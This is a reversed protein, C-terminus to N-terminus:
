AHSVGPREWRGEVWRCGYVQCLDNLLNVLEGAESPVLGLLGVLEVVGRCAWTHAKVAAELDGPELIDALVVAVVDAGPKSGAAGLTEGLHTDQLGPREANLLQRIEAIRVEPTRSAPQGAKTAKPKRTPM